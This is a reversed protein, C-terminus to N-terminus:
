VGRGSGQIALIADTLADAKVLSLSREALHLPLDAALAAYFDAHERLLAIIQEQDM